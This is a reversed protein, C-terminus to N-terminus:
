YQKHGDETRVWVSGHREQASPRLAPLLVGPLTGLLCLLCSSDCIVIKEDLMEAPSCDIYKQRPNGWGQHLVKCELKKFRTLNKQVCKELKDLNSQFTDMEETTDVVGGLKMTNVFKSLTCKIKNDWDNVFIKFLLLALVYGQPVGNTVPRRWSM